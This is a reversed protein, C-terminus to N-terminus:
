ESAWGNVDFYNVWYTGSSNLVNLGLCFQRRKASSVKLRMKKFSFLLIEILIESFNTGLHRGLLIGANTRIIAQRRDPSLGNDSGITTLKGVCIHTARGWHTLWNYSHMIQRSSIRFSFDHWPLNLPCIRWSSHFIYICINQSHIELNSTKPSWMEYRSPPFLEQCLLFFPIKRDSLFPM